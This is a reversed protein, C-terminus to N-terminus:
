GDAHPVVSRKCHWCVFWEPDRNFFDTWVGCHPCCYAAVWKLPQVWAIKYSLFGYQGIADGISPVPGGFSGFMFDRDPM